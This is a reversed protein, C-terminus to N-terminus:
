PELEVRGFGPESWAEIQSGTFFAVQRRDLRAGDLDLGHAARESGVTLALAACLSLGLPGEFAHSLIVEAGCARAVRAWTSCASIGGLLTPKLIVARVGWRNWEDPLRPHASIEALSEDLALRVPPPALAALDALPCPEEVFEPEHVAFRQLQARASHAPWARNADLRLDVHPGLEGRLAAFASLEREIAGPRGVKLKFATLGRARAARAQELASEPEGMLLAAVRRPQPPARDAHLLAWAPLDAARAWLDLLAAELAARAAPVGDPLRRSARALEELVSQEPALEEPLDRVYLASLARRCDELTERSFGPLPAAEGSGRRRSDSELTVLQADRTLWRSHANEAPRSLERRTAIQSLRLSM